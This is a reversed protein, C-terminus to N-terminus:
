LIYFKINVNLIVLNLKVDSFVTGIWGYGNKCNEKGVLWELETLPSFLFRWHSRYNPAGIKVDLQSFSFWIWFLLVVSIRIFKRGVKEILWYQDCFVLKGGKNCLGQEGVSDVIKGYSYRLPMMGMVRHFEMLCKGRRKRHESRRSSLGVSSIRSWGDDGEMENRADGWDRVREAGVMVPGARTEEAVVFNMLIDECNHMEDVIRRAEAMKDGGECTYKQLYTNKLIMFKTLVISYKNPHVTYIWERKSLDVDHSRVFSGILRDTNSQWVRFAFELSKRDIEIDDDCILVAHTQITSRPIFRANLSTTKQRLLSIPAAISSLSLNQSLQSLTEPTTSPNGWLVQVSSVLPSSSYTAAISQLLPIRHESYGNILVTIQDWRLSLQDRQNRLNCTDSESVTRICCVTSKTSSNVLLFLILVSILLNMMM